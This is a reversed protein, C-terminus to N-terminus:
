LNGINLTRCIKKAGALNPQLEFAMLLVKRAKPFQNIEVYFEAIKKYIWATERKPLQLAQIKLLSVPTTQEHGEVSFHYLYLCKLREKLERTFHRFCPRKAEAALLSEYIVRAQEQKGLKQYAEAILFECDRSQEYSLFDDICIGEKQCHLQEYVSIGMEYNQHLLAQFLLELKTYTQKLQNRREQYAEQAERQREAAKLTQDYDWKERKDRLTTYAKCVERFMRAAFDVQEPNKDPHYRKALKRFARKIEPATAGRDIELIEYYNPIQM